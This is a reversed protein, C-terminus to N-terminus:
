FVVVVQARNLPGEPDESLRSLTAADEQSVTLESSGAGAKAKITL